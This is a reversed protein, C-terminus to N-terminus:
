FMPEEQGLVVDTQKNLKETIVRLLTKDHEKYLAYENIISKIYKLFKKLTHREEM